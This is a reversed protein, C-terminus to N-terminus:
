VKAPKLKKWLPEPDAKELKHFALKVKSRILKIHKALDDVNILDAFTEVTRKSPDWRCFPVSSSLYNLDVGDRHLKVGVRSGDWSSWFEDMREDIHLFTHRTSLNPMDKPDIELIRQLHKCRKKALSKNRKGLFIFNSAIASHMLMGAVAPFMKAFAGKQYEESHPDDKINARMGEDVTLYCRLALDCHVDLQFLYHWEPLYIGQL